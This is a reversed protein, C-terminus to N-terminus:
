CKEKFFKYTESIGDELSTKNVWGMKRIRSVDVLKQKMGVPKSIDYDFEGKYGIVKAVTRYYESISYDHGIGVNINQPLENIHEIAFFIFDALDKCYMFERRANGDGWISVKQSGDTKANHIKRIIAPLLHSHKPHFKDFRGFLNCPIITKYALSTDKNSIYECLRTSVTKAIAYGENTPELKGSLIMEESLPNNADKPYMCSSAINIFYPIGINYSSYILDTGMKLNDMLFDIPNNINAQIGGVKGAAHIVLDPKEANLFNKINEPNLLNLDKSSPALVSHCKMDDHELINRGVM